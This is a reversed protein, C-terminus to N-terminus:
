PADPIVGVKPLAVLMMEGTQRNHRICFLDSAQQNRTAHCVLEFTGSATMGSATSGQSVPLRDIAVRKIDGNRTDIRICFLTSQSPTDSSDCVLQYNWENGAATAVPAAAAPAERSRSDRSSCAAVMSLSLVLAAVVTRPM